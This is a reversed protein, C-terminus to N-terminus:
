KNKEINITDNRISNREKICSELIDCICDNKKMFQLLANTDKPFCMGGYSLKNDPGPVQTHMPNIWNNKIMIKKILEYNINLKTCLQYLENFFQIKVSYFNNVFLKMCESETSNCISQISNPFYQSYLNTILELDTNDILSTTGIVIQTQNIFDEINTKASLFEPNHIIKLQYQVALNETTLPEVTCKNIILGSYNNRHLLILTNHLEDKNYELKIESYQTPVCIFLIDTELISNFTGIKKYKDYSYIEILNDIKKFGNLIASGVIGIGILGIKM